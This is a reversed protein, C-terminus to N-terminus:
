SPDTKQVLLLDLYEDLRKSEEQFCSAVGDIITSKGKLSL